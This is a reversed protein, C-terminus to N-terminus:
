RAHTSDAQLTELQPESGATTEGLVRDVLRRLILAELSAAAALAGVLALADVDLGLAALLAAAAVAVGVAMRPRLEVRVLPEWRWAVATV